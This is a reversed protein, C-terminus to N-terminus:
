GELGGFVVAGRSGVCVLNSSSKTCGRGGFGSLPLCAVYQPVAGAGITPPGEHLGLQEDAVHM